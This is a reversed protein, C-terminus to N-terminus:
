APTGATGGSQPKLWRVALRQLDQPHLPKTVFDDMGAALCQERDGQLAAATAAVITVHHTASPEVAAEDHRIRRTADYGDMVPMDCDMLVLDYPLQRLAEVAEKGNGAVDVQCGLRKFMAAALLQSVPNDEVVLIRGSFRTAAEPLSPVEPATTVSDTEVTEFPLIVEFTSGAGPASQVHIVGGMAETLRKCIALGLGTGGFRRTTSADAQVFPRFLRSQADPEIGIGTDKVRFRLWKQPPAETAAATATTDISGTAIGRESGTGTGTGAGTGSTSTAKSVSSPSTAGASDSGSPLSSASPSTARATVGNVAHGGSEAPPTTPAGEPFSVEDCSLAVEGHATFKVANGLLNLLIQRLRAPDGRVQGPVAFHSLLRLGKQEAGPRVLALIHQLEQQPSFVAPELQLHGAEIKSFDLFENLLHLLSEGSARALEAHRRQEPNLPSDLLLGTFGIMGNLPTRIEHSMTALFDTKAQNAAEAERRAEQLQRTRQEVRAELDLQSRHVEQELRKRETIDREVVLALIQHGDRDRIPAGSFSHFWQEDVGVRAVQLEWDRFTEGRIARWMPWEANPVISGDLDRVVYAAAIAGPELHMGEQSTQGHIRGLADNVMVAKGTEDFIAVGSDMSQIVSELKARNREATLATERVEALLREREEEAHKQASIDSFIATCEGPAPSYLYITLWQNTPAFHVEYQGEGGELGIRGMTGIFDFDFNEIGPFVETTLRGEVQDRRLGIVREYADNVKEIIHDVPKGKDDIVIRTHAIANTRSNFLVSYRRESERLAQEMHIRESVDRFIVAFRGPAPRYCYLEYTRDTSANYSEFRVPEGTLAVQGYRNVWTREIDPMVESIPRGLIERGLGSQATFAANCEILRFDAPEGSADLIPEGIVLGEGMNGFLDDYRQRSEQLARRLLQLEAEQADLRLQLDEQPLAPLPLPAAPPSANKRTHM